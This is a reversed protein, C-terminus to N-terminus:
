QTWLLRTGQRAFAELTEWETWLSQIDCNMPSVSGVSPVAMMTRDLIALYQLRNLRKSVIAVAMTTKAPSAPRPAGLVLAPPKPSTKDNPIM